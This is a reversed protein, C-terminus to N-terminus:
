KLVDSSKLVSFYVYALIIELSIIISILGILGVFPALAYCVAIQALSLIAVTYVYLQTKGINFMVPAAFLYIFLNSIMGVAMVRFLILLSHDTSKSVFFIIERAFISSFLVIMVLATTFLILYERVKVSAENWNGNLKKSIYPLFSTSFPTFISKLAQIIRDSVGYMGAVNPDFKIMLLSPLISSTTVSFITSTFYYQANFLDLKSIPIKIFRIKYKTYIIIQSAIGTLLVSSGTFLIVNLYDGPGDVFLFILLASAARSLSSITVILGMDEMGQHMGYAFLVQGLLFPASYIYSTFYIEPLKALLVIAYFIISTLVLLTLKSFMATSFITNLHIKESRHIAVEKPLMTGIGFDIAINALNILGFIVVIYGFSSIGVTRVIYPTSILPILYSFVQMVLVQIYNRHFTKEEPDRNHIQNRVIILICNFM